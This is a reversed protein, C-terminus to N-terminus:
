YYVWASKSFFFLFYTSHNGEVRDTDDFLQLELGSIPFYDYYINKKNLSRVIYTM